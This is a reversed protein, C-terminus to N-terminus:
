MLYETVVESIESIREETLHCDDYWETYDSDVGNKITNAMCLCEEFDEQNIYEDIDLEM